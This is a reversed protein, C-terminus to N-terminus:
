MRAIPIAQGLANRSMRLPAAVETHRKAEIAQRRARIQRAREKENAEDARKKAAAAAQARAAAATAAAKLRQAHAAQYAARRAEEEKAKAKAMTREAFEAEKKLLRLFYARGSHGVPHNCVGKFAYMARTSRQHHDNLKESFSMRYGSRAIRALLKTPTADSYVADEYLQEETPTYTTWRVLIRAGSRRYVESM